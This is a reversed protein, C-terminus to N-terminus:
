ICLFTLSSFCSGYPYSFFGCLFSSSYCQTQTHINECNTMITTFSKPYLSHLFNQFTWHKSHVSWGDNLVISVLNNSFLISSFLNLPYSSPSLRQFILFGNYLFILILFRSLMNVMSFILILLRVLLNVMLFILIFFRLFLNVTSFTKILKTTSIVYVPLTHHSEM